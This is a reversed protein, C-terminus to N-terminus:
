ARVLKFSDHLPVVTEITSSASIKAESVANVPDEDAIPDAHMKMPITLVDPIIELPAPPPSGNEDQVPAAKTSVLGDSVQPVQEDASEYESGSSHNVWEDLQQESVNEEAGEDIPHLYAFKGIVGVGLIKEPIFDGCAQMLLLCEIFVQHM